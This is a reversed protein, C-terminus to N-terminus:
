LLVNARRHAYAVALMMIGTDASASTGVKVHASLHSPLTPLVTLPENSLWLSHLDSGTLLRKIYERPEEESMLFVTRPLAHRSAFDRLMDSLDKMWKEQADKVRMSFQMNRAPDIVDGGDAHLGGEEHAARAITAVGTPLSAVDVLIGKKVFAADTSEGSVQLVLFDKEHPFIIRYAEYVLPAFATVQVEHMHYWRKLTNTIAKSVETDLASSLVLLDARRVKKGFPNAVEYGNLLTAIVHAGSRVCGKPLPIDEPTLNLHARSFVFQKPDEIVKQHVSSQQWPSAVSAYVSEISGSGTEQRLIPAGKEVLLRGLEDLADLMITSVLKGSKVPFPVRVSYIIEPAGIDQIRAYAGAVSSSGIDILAVTKSRPSGFLGM